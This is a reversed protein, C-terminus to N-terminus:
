RDNLHKYYEYEQIDNVTAMTQDYRQKLFKRHNEQIKQPSLENDSSYRKGDFKSYSGMLPRDNDEHNLHNTPHLIMPYGQFNKRIEFSETLDLLSNSQNILPISKPNISNNTKSKSQNRHYLPSTDDVRPEILTTSRIINSLSSSITRKVSIPTSHNSFMHPGCHQKMVRKLRLEFENKSQGNRSTKSQFSSNLSDNQNTKVLQNYQQVYTTTAISSKHYYAKFEDLDKTDFYKLNPLVSM